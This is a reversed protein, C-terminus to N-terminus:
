SGDMNPLLHRDVPCSGRQHRAWIEVLSRDGFTLDKPRPRVCQHLENTGSKQKLSGAMPPIAIHTTEDLCIQLPNARFGLRFIFDGFRCVSDPTIALPELEAPARTPLLQRVLNSLLVSAAMRCSPASRVEDPDVTDGVM